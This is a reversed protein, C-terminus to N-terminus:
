LMCPSFTCNALSPLPRMLMTLPMQYSTGICPTPCSGCDQVRCALRGANM